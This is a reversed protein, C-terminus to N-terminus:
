KEKDYKYLYNKSVRLGEGPICIIQPEPKKSIGERVAMLLQPNPGTKNKNLVFKEVWQRVLDQIKDVISQTNDLIIKDKSAMLFTKTLANAVKPGYRSQIYNYLQKNNALSQFGALLKKQIKMEKAVEKVVKSGHQMIQDDHRNFVQKIEEYAVPWGKKWAGTQFGTKAKEFSEKPSMIFSLLSGFSKIITGGHNDSFYNPDFLYSSTKDLAGKTGGELANNLVKNWAVNGKFIAVIAKSNNNEEINAVISDWNIKALIEEKLTQMISEKLRPNAVIQEALEQNGIENGLIKGIQKFILTIKKKNQTAVSFLQKKLLEGNQKDLFNGLIALFSPSTYFFEFQTDDRLVNLTYKKGVSLFFHRSKANYNDVIKSIFGILILEPNIQYVPNGVKFYQINKLSDNPVEVIIKVNNNIYPVRHQIRKWFLPVFGFIIKTFCIIILISVFISNFWFLKSRRRKLRRFFIKM